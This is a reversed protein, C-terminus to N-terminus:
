KFVEQELKDIHGMIINVKWNVYDITDLNPPPTPLDM